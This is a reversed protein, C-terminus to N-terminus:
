VGPPPLTLILIDALFSRSTGEGREGDVGELLTWNVLFIRSDVGGGPRGECGPEGLTDASVGPARGRGREGEEEEEEEDLWGCDSGVAVSGM